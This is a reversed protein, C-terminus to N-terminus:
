NHQSGVPVRVWGACISSLDLGISENLEHARHIIDSASPYKTRSCLLIINQQDPVDYLMVWPLYVRVKLLLEVMEAETEPLCNIALVGNPMLSHAADRFFDPSHLPNINADKTYIDCLIIDFTDNSNQLFRQASALTVPHAPPLHFYERAIKVIDPDLEVSVTTVDPLQSILFREIVGSGLGLNLLRAPYGTYLLSCLMAQIYDLAPYAPEQMWMASQISGGSFRLWRLNDQEVVAITETKGTLRTLVKGRATQLQGINIDPPKITLM